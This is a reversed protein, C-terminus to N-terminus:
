SLRVGGNCEGDVEGLEEGKALNSAEASQGISGWKAYLDDPLAKKRMLDRNKATRTGQVHPGPPASEAELGMIKIVDGGEFRVTGRRNECSCQVNDRIWKILAVLKQINSENKKEWDQIRSTMDNCEIRKFWGEPEFYGAVLHPTQSVWMQTLINNYDLEKSAARTKIEITQSAPISSGQFKVQVGRQGPAVYRTSNSALTSPDTWRSSALSSGSTSSPTSISLDGLLNSLAAPAQSPRASRPPNRRPQSAQEGGFEAPSLFAQPGTEYNLYGDCESRNIVKLGGLVYSVVRHHGKGIHNKTVADEFSHGYGDRGNSWCETKPEVRTFLLTKDGAIEVKIEFKDGSRASSVFKLLKRINNRDSVLDIESVDYAPKLAFLSRFLPELPSGPNRAANQDIFYKGQDPQVQVATSPTDLLSPFGLWGTLRIFIKLHLDSVQCQLRPTAIM